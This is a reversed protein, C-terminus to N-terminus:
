RLFIWFKSKHKAAGFSTQVPQDDNYLICNLSNSCFLYLYLTFHTNFKLNQMKGTLHKLLRASELELEAYRALVLALQPVRAFHGHHPGGALVNHAVPAVLAGAHLYEGLVAVEQLLDGDTVDVDHRPQGHGIVTLDDGNVTNARGNEYDPLAAVQESPEIAAIVHPLRRVYGYMTLQFFNVSGKKLLSLLSNVFISVEVPQLKGNEIRKKKCQRSNEECKIAFLIFNNLESNERLGMKFICKVSFVKKM